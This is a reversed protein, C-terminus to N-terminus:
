RNVTSSRFFVYFFPTVTFLTPLLVLQSDNVFFKSYLALGAHVYMYEAVSLFLINCSMSM